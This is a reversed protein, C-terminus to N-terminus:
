IKPWKFANLINLTRPAPTAPRVPSTEQDPAARVPSETMAPGTPQFPLLSEVPKGSIIATLRSSVAAPDKRDAEQLAKTWGKAETKAAKETERARVEAAKAKATEVKADAAAAASQSAKVDPTLPKITGTEDMYQDKSSKNFSERKEDFETRGTTPDVIKAKAAEVNRQRVTAPSTYDALAQSQPQSVAYRSGAYAKVDGGAAQNASAAPDYQSGVYGNVNIPGANAAASSRYADGIQRATDATLPPPILGALRGPSANVQAQAAQQRASPLATTDAPPTYPLGNVTVGTSPATTAAPVAPAVQPLRGIPPITPDTSSPQFVPDFDIGKATLRQQASAMSTEYAQQSPYNLAKWRDEFVPLRSPM